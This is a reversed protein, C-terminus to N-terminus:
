EIRMEAKAELDIDESFYFGIIPSITSTVNVIASRTVEDFNVEAEVDELASGEVSRQVAADVADYAQDADEYTIAVRAGERAASTLTIKGNLVWGFEIMGLILALIIPLIITFEVLAQGSKNKILYLIRKM